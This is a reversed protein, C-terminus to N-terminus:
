KYRGTIIFNTIKISKLIAIVIFCILIVGLSLLSCILLELPFVSIAGGGAYISDLYCSINVNLPFFLHLIYIPLSNRGLSSLFKSMWSDSDFRIKSIKLTIFICGFAILVRSASFPLEYGTNIKIYFLVFALVVLGSLHNEMYLLKNLQNYKLLLYGVVYYIYLNLHGIDFFPLQQYRVCYRSALYLVISFVSFIFIEAYDRWRHFHCAVQTALITVCYFEFVILLYWYFISRGSILWYISGCLFYPIMLIIFRCLIRNGLDRFTLKTSLVPHFLGSCFMFLPMHFAYIIHWLLFRRSDGVINGDPYQWTLVHGLVVLFIAIGKVSDLYIIRQRM